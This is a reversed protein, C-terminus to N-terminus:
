RCQISCANLKDNYMKRIIMKFLTVPHNLTCTIVKNIYQDDNWKMKM